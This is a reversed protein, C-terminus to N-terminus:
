LYIFQEILCATLENIIGNESKNQCVLSNIKVLLKVSSLKTDIVVVLIM